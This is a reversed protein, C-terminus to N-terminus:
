LKLCRHYIKSNSTCKARAIVLSSGARLFLKCIWRCYDKIHEPEANEKVADHVKEVIETIYERQIRSRKM